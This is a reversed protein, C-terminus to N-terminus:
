RVGEGMRNDTHNPAPQFVRPRGGDLQRVVMHGFAIHLDEAIGYDRDGMLVVHDLHAAVAGRHGLIGISTMHLEHAVTAARLLNESQGSVSLLVLVDGPQGSTRLQDSFVDAYSRDNAIATLRSINECLAVVPVACGVAAAANAWDAAIHISAGASGGNGAVYVRRGLVLAGHILDVATSLGDRDVRQAARALDDLYLAAVTGGPDSQKPRETATTSHM